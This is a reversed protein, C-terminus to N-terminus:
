TLPFGSSKAKGSREHLMLKDSAASHKHELINVLPSISVGLASAAATDRTLATGNSDAGAIIMIQKM